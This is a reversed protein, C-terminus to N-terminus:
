SCSAWRYQHSFNIRQVIWTGTALLLPIERLPDSSGAKENRLPRGDTSYNAELDERERKPGRRGASKVQTWGM